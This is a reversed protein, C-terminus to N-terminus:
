NYFENLNPTKWVQRSKDVKIPKEKSISEEKELDRLLKILNKEDIIEKLIREITRDDM